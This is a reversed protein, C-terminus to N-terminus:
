EIVEDARALLSQPVTLGLTKATKLNIALEIKTPAVVPLDAPKAGSLIQGAYNGTQRMVWRFSPAYSMLGGALVAERWEQMMPIKYRDALQILRRWNNGLFPEAEPLIPGALSEFAPDLDTDSSVMAIVLNVRLAGGVEEIAELNLKHTTLTPNM